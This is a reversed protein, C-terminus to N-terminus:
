EWKRVRLEDRQTQFVFQVISELDRDRIRTFDVAWVRAGDLTEERVVRGMAGAMRVPLQTLTIVLEINQGAQLHRGCAIKVGAGSIELVELPHPFDEQLSDQAHIGILLDLKRDLSALAEILAENVGAGKLEMASVATSVIPAERFLQQEHGTSVLRMRGRLYTPIRLYTRQEEGM